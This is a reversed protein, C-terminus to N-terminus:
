QEYSCKAWTNMANAAIKKSAFGDFELSNFNGERQLLIIAAGQRNITTSKAKSM